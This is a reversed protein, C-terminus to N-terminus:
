PTGAMCLSCPDQLPVLTETANVSALRQLVCALTKHRQHGRHSMARDLAVFAQGRGHGSLYYGSLFLHRPLLLELNPPRVVFLLKCIHQDLVPVLGLDVEFPLYLSWGVIPLFSAVMLWIMLIVLVAQVIRM